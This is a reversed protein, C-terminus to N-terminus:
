KRIIPLDAYSKRDHVSHSVLQSLRKPSPHVAVLNFADAEIAQVDLGSARCRITNSNSFRRREAGERSSLM